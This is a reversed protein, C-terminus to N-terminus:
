AIEEASSGEFRIAIEGESTNVTGDGAFWADRLAVLKGNAAEVTVTAGTMTVLADLDLNGRDTVAGEVFAPQPEEKYGHVGDAGIIAVRKPRGLNYTFDGKADYLVGDVNFQIIGGRRSM